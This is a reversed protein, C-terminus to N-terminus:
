QYGHLHIQDLIKAKPTMSIQLDIVKNIAGQGIKNLAGKWDVDVKDFSSDQLSRKMDGSYIINELYKFKKQFAKLFDIANLYRDLDAKIIFPNKEPKTFLKAYKSSVVNNIKSQCNELAPIMEHYNEIM